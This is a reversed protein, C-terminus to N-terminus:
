RGTQAEKGRTGTDGQGGADWQVWVFGYIDMQMCTHMHIKQCSEGFMVNPSIEGVMPPSIMGQNIMQTKAQRTQRDACAGVGWLM